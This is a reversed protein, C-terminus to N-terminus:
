TKGQQPLVLWVAIVLCSLGTLSYVIRWTIQVSRSLPEFTALFGFVCFLAVAALLAATVVRAVSTPGFRWLLVVGVIM